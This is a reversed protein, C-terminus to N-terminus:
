WDAVQIEWKQLERLLPTVHSHGSRFLSPPPGPNVTPYHVPSDALIEGVQQRVDGLIATRFDIRARIQSVQPGHYASLVLTDTLQRLMSMHSGQWM